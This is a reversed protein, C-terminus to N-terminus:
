GALTLPMAQRLRLKGLPHPSILRVNRTHLATFPVWSPLRNQIERAREIELRHKNWAAPDWCNGRDHLPVAIPWILRRREYTTL